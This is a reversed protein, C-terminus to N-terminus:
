RFTITANPATGTLAAYCGVSFPVDLRAFATTGTVAALKCIITGSGATNDYLILTAADSGATLVVTHVGGPGSKVAGSSAKNSNSFTQM